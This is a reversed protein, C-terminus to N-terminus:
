VFAQTAAKTSEVKFFSVGVREGKRWIVTCGRRIKGDQTLRLVFQKPLAWDTSVAIEGGRMSINSLKCPLLGSPDEIWVSVEAPHRYERRRDM